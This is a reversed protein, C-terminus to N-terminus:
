KNKLCKKHKIGLLRTNHGLDAVGPLTWEFKINKELM